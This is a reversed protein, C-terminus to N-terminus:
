FELLLALVQLGPISGIIKIGICLAMSHRVWNIIDNASLISIKFSWLIHIYNSNLLLQSSDIGHVINLSSNTHMVRTRGFGWFWFTGGTSLAEPIHSSPLLHGSLGM